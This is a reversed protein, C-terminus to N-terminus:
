ESHDAYMGRRLIQDMELKVIHYPRYHEDEGCPAIDEEERFVGSSERLHTTLRHSYSSEEGRAEIEEIGMLLGEDATMM